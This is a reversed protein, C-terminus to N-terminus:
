HDKGTYMEPAYITVSCYTIGTKGSGPKTYTQFARWVLNYKSWAPRSAEPYLASAGNDGGGIGAFTHGLQKWVLTRAILDSEVWPTFRYQSSWYRNTDPYIETGNQKQAQVTGHITAGIVWWERNEPSITKDLLGDFHQLLCSYVIEIAGYTNDRPYLQSLYAPHLQAPGSFGGSTYSGIAALNPLDQRPLLTRRSIRKWFTLNSSGNAWSPWSDNTRGHRTADAVYSNWRSLM